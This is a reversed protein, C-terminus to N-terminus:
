SLAEELICQCRNGWHQRDTPKESRESIEVSKLEGVSVLYDSRKEEMLKQVFADLKEKSEHM